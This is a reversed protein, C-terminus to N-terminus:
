LRASRMEDGTSQGLFAYTAAVERLVDANVEFFSENKDFEPENEKLGVHSRFFNSQENAMALTYDSDQIDSVGGDDKTLYCVLMGLSFGLAVALVLVATVNKQLFDKM